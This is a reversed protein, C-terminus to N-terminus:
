KTDYGFAELEEALHEQCLAKMSDNLDQQWRGISKKPHSTTKHRKQMIVPTSKSANKVIRKVLSLDHDLNLYSLIAQLTHVPELILDEYRVLHAQTSRNQWAHLVNVANSKIIKVAEEKNQVNFPGFHGMKESFSLSSCLVDRFDRVLFIEAVQPYIEYLFQAPEGPGFKEAFYVPSNSANHGLEIKQSQSVAIQEYFGDISQQCFALAQEIYTRGLWDQSSKNHLLHNNLWQMTLDFFTDPVKVELYNMPDSIFRFLMYLWYKAAYAEYPYQRQVIINQCETLIHMLWTSGSRGLANLMLPQLKPQYPSQLAQHRLRIKGINIRCQDQFVLQIGLDVEFPIGVVSLLMYFGSNEANKVQPYRRAVDPRHLSVTTTKLPRHPTNHYTLWIEKVQSKKGLVWGKITILYVNHQTNAKPTDIVFGWLRETSKNVYSVEIIEVKNNNNM